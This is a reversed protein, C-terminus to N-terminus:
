WKTHGGKADIVAQCRAPMSEIYKKFDELQLKEWEEVLYQEVQADTTPFRRGIRYKLLRWVNEIPNLDPSHAPWTMRIVGHYTHYAQTLKATHISANDEMHISRMFGVTSEINHLFQYFQPLVKQTYIAANIKGWSKDMLILPGKMIGSIGAYAMRASFGAFKPILCQPHYKEEATRTVYIKGFVGTTFSAADTWSVRKWMEFDWSKHKNAWELRATIHEPTLLPKEQATRRHYQEKEFATFLSRRCVQIGEINAIQEYSLRRHYADLTARKVLRRRKCTTLIPKRGIPKPPTSFSVDICSKVTTRAIRLERAIHSINWKALSYLAEIQHREKVSLRQGRPRDPDAYSKRNKHKGPM